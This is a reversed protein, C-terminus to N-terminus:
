RDQRPAAKRFQRRYQQPTIGTHRQFARGLLKASVYGSRRAIEEMGEDTEALLKQVHAARLRQIEELPSRGLNQRFWREMRRRDVPVAHLLQKVSLGEAAYDHMHRLLAAMEPDQEAIIDTSRRAVIGVPPLRIPEVPAPQGRMSQDLIGAAQYGIKEAAIEVSSLPVPALECWAEDDGTGVIAFDDPVRFGADTCASTVHWGVWDTETLLGTPRPRLRLWRLFEGSPDNETRIEGSFSAFAFGRDEAALRLVERKRIDEPGNGGIYGFARLGLGVFYEGVMRSIAPGDTYIQPADVARDVWDAQVVPINRKHFEGFLGDNLIRACSIIGTPHWSKLLTLVLDVEWPSYSRFTWGRVFRAYRGVGKLIRRDYGHSADALLL